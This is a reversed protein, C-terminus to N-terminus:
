RQKAMRNILDMVNALADVHPAGNEMRRIYTLRDDYIHEIRAVLADVTLNEEHLVDSYGAKRFSEANLIQDGRSQARTLPILLMPKRLHLFEFISNSGARSVVVDAMALVDPLEDRIYAVQVYGPAQVTDDTQGEGCLHVIQFRKTLCPLAEKVALNIKRSGLSGGMVLLVPKDRTFGAWARGRAANGQDLTERIVPGVYHVKRQPLHYETESFTTCVKTACPIALKNALGPTLDSEHIIVPVRNLRAGLVVPVSVFGGKSFLIDPKSRKILRYAQVIGKLVRFPDKVNNWDLYRRLKGTAIGYYKVDPVHEVLQKEIRTHSGIYEITWGDALLKPILAINVTVHGASGGGTFMIKRLAM